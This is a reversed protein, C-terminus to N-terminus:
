PVQFISVFTLRLLLLAAYKSPLSGVWGLGVSVVVVVVVVVLGCM